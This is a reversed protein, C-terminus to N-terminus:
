PLVVAYPRNTVNTNVSGHNVTSPLDAQGAVSGGLVPVFAGNDGGFGAPSLIGVFSPTAVATVVLVAVAYRQGVVMQYSASFSRTYPTNTAAFLTTDNVTSAVLALDSNVDVTYLGVRCLTPTAAAATAGSEIRIQTALDAKRATFYTMLLKQNATVVAGSTVLNRHFVEQGNTLLDPDIPAKAALAAVLGTILSQSINSVDADVIALGALKSKAIAATASVMANTISLASPTRTDSLRTDTTVVVTSGGKTLAGIVDLGDDTTLQDAASRYLNADGLRLGVKTSTPDYGVVVCKALTATDSAPFVLGGSTVSVAAFVYSKAGGDVVVGKLSATGLTTDVDFTGDKLSVEAALGGHVAAVYTTNGAATAGAISFAEISFPGNAVEAVRATAEAFVHHEIHLRKVSVARGGIIYFVLNYWGEVDLGDFAMEAASGQFCPGTAVVSTGTNFVGINKWSQKPMGTTTAPAMFGASNQIAYFDINEFTSDWVCQKGNDDAVAIGRYANRIILDRWTHHYYGSPDSTPSRFLVAVSGADTQPVDYELSLDTVTITHDNPTTFKIVPQGVTYQRIITVNRGAGIIRSGPAFTHVLAATIKYVGAPIFVLVPNAATSKDLIAQLAATSDAVGTPDLGAGTAIVASMYTGNLASIAAARATAEATDAAARTTAEATLDTTLARLGVATTLGTDAAARTTAEATDAAARTTAEATVAAARAVTEAALDAGAAAQLAGTGLTRKTATGAAGDGPLAVTGTLGDVSAVADVPTALQLWNGLVSAPDAALIFTQSLDTRVAVDGRQATLALMAAQSAVVFTDSIALPPMQTTPVLGGSDLTAVGLAAAKQTLPILLTDANTRLTAEGAVAGLPEYAQPPPTTSGFPPAPGRQRVLFSNEDVTANAGTGTWRYKVQGAQTVPVDCHYQGVADKTISAGSYVLETRDPQDVTLTVTTPDVPQGGITPTFTIRAIDGIDYATVAV